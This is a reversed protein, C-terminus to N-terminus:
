GMDKLNSTESVGPYTYSQALALSAVIFSISLSLNFTDTKKLVSSM